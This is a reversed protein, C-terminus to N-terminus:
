RALRGSLLSAIDRQPTADVTSEDAHLQAEPHLSEDDDRDEHSDSEVGECRRELEGGNERQQRGTEQNEQLQAHVVRANDGDCAVVGIQQLVSARLQLWKGIRRQVDDLSVQLLVANQVELLAQVVALVDVDDIQRIRGVHPVVVRLEGQIRLNVPGADDIVRQSADQVIM